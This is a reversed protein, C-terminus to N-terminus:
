ASAADLAQGEALVHDPVKRLERVIRFWSLIKLAYFTIDVEWWYFGQRASAMYHHHNNHWGEGLTVLALMWNNKSTDATPFRRKGFLHSLSNITFTGHWLLMTSLCFGWVFFGFGGVLWVAAGLAIPPVLYYKNLWRLEPFKAFDAIYDFRTGEYRDSVIWGVHSWWFGFLTPSHLDLDQDSYRHHHRHHAAWWLVGKQSSSMALFALVFQFVRSTKFSRHSFYRHYGATVFFMRAEYLLFCALVYYWHFPVFFIALVSLHALVFPICSLLQLRAGNPLPLSLTRAVSAM